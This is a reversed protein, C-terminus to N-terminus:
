RGIRVPPQPVPPPKPQPAVKELIHEIRQRVEPDPNSAHKRLLPAIGKGLKILTESAAERDRFSEAGLQAILKEVKEIIEAPPLPSTRTISAVEAAPLKLTPGEGSISFAVAPEALEGTLESGDWLSVSMRPGEFTVAAASAPPFPVNGFQTRVTLTKNAVEGVLKNGSRTLLIAQGKPAPEEGGLGPRALSFFQQPAIKVEPGLQLKLTKEDMMLMGLLRSGNLLTLWHGPVSGYAPDIRLLSKPSIPIAGYQTQLRIGEPLGALMLREGSRLTVMLPAAAPSARVAPSAPKQESLRRGCERIASLPIKLTSGLNLRLHLVPEALKGSLAQGDDLLLWARSSGKVPVIGALDEAAIEVKGFSTTLVYSRNELTGLLVNGDSLVVRDAPALRTVHPPFSLSASLSKRLSPMRFLSAIEEDSLARKWI